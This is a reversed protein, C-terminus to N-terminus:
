TMICVLRIKLTTLVPLTRCGVGLFVYFLVHILNDSLDTCVVAPHILFEPLLFHYEVKPITQIIFSASSAPKKNPPPTTAEAALAPLPSPSSPFSLAIKVGPQPINKKRVSKLSFHFHEDTMELEAVGHVTHLGRPEETWSTRWTLMKSPAAM